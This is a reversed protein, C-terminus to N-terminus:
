DASLAYGVGRVSCIPDINLQKRIHRRMRSIHADITRTGQRYEHTTFTLRELTTRDFVANRVDFFPGLICLDSKSLTAYVDGHFLMFRAEDLVFPDIHRKSKLATPRVRRLVARLTLFAESVSCEQLLCLHNADDPRSKCLELFGLNETTRLDLAAQQFAVPDCPLIDPQYVVLDPRRTPISSLCDDVNRLILVDLGALDFATTLTENLAQGAFLVIALGRTDQQLEVLQLDADAWRM